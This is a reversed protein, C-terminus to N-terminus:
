NKRSALAMAALEPDGPLYDFGAKTLASGDVIFNGFLQDYLGKKGLMTLALKMMWLPVPLLRAGRGMTKRAKTIIERTSRPEAEALHFIRGAVKQTPANSLFVLARAANKLSVLSRCNNAFGFPLPLPSDCLRMLAKLNARADPGYILTPRAIVIEIGDMALLAAEARAKAIAYADGERPRLPMDPTLPMPNGAVTYITSVFVFRKVGTAKARNALEVVLRHNVADFADEGPREKGTRHALAACHIVTEIGSFDAQALDHRSLPLSPLGAEELVRLVASGVFGGAGTVAVTM